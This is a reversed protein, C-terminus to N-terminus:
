LKKGIWHVAEDIDRIAGRTTAVLWAAVVHLDHGLGHHLAQATAVNAALEDAAKEADTKEPIPTDTNTDTM